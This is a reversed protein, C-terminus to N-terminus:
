AVDKIKSLFGDVIEELSDSQTALSKASDLVSQATKKTEDTFAHIKQIGQGVERTQSSAEQVNQSIEITADGQQKVAESIMQATEKMANISNVIDRISRNSNNTADQVDKIQNSIDETAKATQGALNKVEGAVVAFGKGAEGARASEITANLALLNTQEAIETILGIVQGIKNTAEVLKSMQDLAVNAKNQAEEAIKSSQGIQSTIEQISASLQESSSAVSNVSSSSSEASHMASDVSMSSNKASDTMAKASKELDGSSKTLGGLVEEIQGRFIEFLTEIVYFKEERKKREQREYNETERERILVSKFVMMVGAMAGIEDRKDLYPVAVDLNKAALSSMVDSIDQIPKVITKSSLISNVVVLAIGLGVAIALTAQFSAKRSNILINVSDYETEIVSSFASMASELFEFNNQFAGYGVSSQEPTDIATKTLSEASSIYKELPDQLEALQQNVADSLNADKVKKISERFIDAHEKISALAEERKAIDKEMGVKIAFLVDARLADHMMDADTQSRLASTIAKAKEFVEDLSYLQFVSVAGLMLIVLMFLSNMLFVKARIKM